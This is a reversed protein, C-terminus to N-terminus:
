LSITPHLFLSSSVPPTRVLACDGPRRIATRIRIVQPMMEDTSYMPVSM